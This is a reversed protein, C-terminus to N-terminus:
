FDQTYRIIEVRNFNSDFSKYVNAVTLGNITATYILNVGDSSNTLEVQKGLKSEITM